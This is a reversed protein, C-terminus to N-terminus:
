KILIKVGEELTKKLIFKVKNHLLIEDIVMEVKGEIKHNIMKIKHIKTKVM